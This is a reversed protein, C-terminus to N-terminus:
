AAGAEVPAPCWPCKAKLCVAGRELSLEHYAAENAHQLDALRQELARNRDQEKALQIRLRNTQADGLRTRWRRIFAPATM